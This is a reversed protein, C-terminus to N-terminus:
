EKYHKKLIQAIQRPRKGIENVPFIDTQVNINRNQDLGYFALMKIQDNDLCQAYAGLPISCGGSIEKLIIHEAQTCIRSNKDDLVSLLDQMQQDDIRSQVAMAGQGPPPIFKDVPLYETIRNTMGIRILGAAALIVGDLDGSDVMAVRTDVNGRIPIVSIGPYYHQLLLTRRPSGTGIRYKTGPIFKQGKNLILVERVDARKLIASFRLGQTLAAPMDKLSHVAVDIRNDLLAREIEGVFAGLTTLDGRDGHTRIVQTKINLDPHYKLLSKVVTQTQILALKSGRTGIIIERNSM